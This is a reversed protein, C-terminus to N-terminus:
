GTQRFRRARLFLADHVRPRAERIAWHERTPHVRNTLLVSVAQAEPDCWLSTGTFGLHGFSDPSALSGASSGERLVGDFGMRLNGGPRESIMSEAARRSLWSTNRETLADLLATGFRAVAAATGFLGAHGALAHGAIAWANEDHVVGRLEGGRFNVVETPAVRECFAQGGRMFDRASGLELALPTAVQEQVLADLPQGLASAVAEGALLYGLDSYVPEFGAAPVPKGALEPRRAAAARRLARDREFPRRELLPAFLARHPELGARHSLLLELSVHESPTGSSQPLLRGLPASLEVAGAEALRVIAAAVVPKTVSALDFLTQPSVPCSRAGGLTGAGGTELRSDAASVSAVALAAAPAVGPVVVLDRAIEDLERTRGYAQHRASTV